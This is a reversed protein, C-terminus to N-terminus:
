TGPPVAGRTRRSPRRRRLGTRCGSPGGGARRRSVPGGSGDGPGAASRAGRDGAGVRGRVVQRPVFAMVSGRM